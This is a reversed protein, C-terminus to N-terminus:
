PLNSDVNKKIQVMSNESETGKGMFAYPTQQQVM